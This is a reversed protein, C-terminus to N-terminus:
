VSLARPQGAPCAAAAGAAPGPELASTRGALGIPICGSLVVILVCGILVKMANGKCYPPADCCATGAEPFEWGM